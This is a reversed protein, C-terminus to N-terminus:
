IHVVKVDKWNWLTSTGIVDRVVVQDDTEHPHMLPIDVMHIVTVDIKVCFSPIVCGHFKDVVWLGNFKGSAV